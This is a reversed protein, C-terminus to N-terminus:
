LGGEWSTFFERREMPRRSMKPNSFKATLLYWMPIQGTPIKKWLMSTLFTVDREKFQM